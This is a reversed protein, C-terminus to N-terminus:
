GGAAPSPRPAHLAAPAKLTVGLVVAMLGIAFSGMFLWQYTGLLDHIAGGAYSGLGMGICSIFFVAGYATGMVREGFYERTVVPYLPMAGGYAVGFALSIAYLAVTGTAFLYLFILVAQFALAVLLTRKAGVRDAVIGTGIRGFISTFGSAGLITAATMRAVGQDMAHTVLHFLPGSHAACCCFHTLAITWFPWTRWPLRASGLVAGLQGGGPSHPPWTQSSSSHGGSHSHPPWAPQGGSPSHPPWTQAGASSFGLSTFAQGGGASPGKLLLACPVVAVLALVGLVFFAVRWDYENILWRTLPALTLIGLGNGASVVAAAMARRSEFWKIALVTLPVYFASVGAGVLLGFTVYLHWMQQVHSSLLLGAVLLGAGVLVVRRTGARDSVFGSVVGGAGMVVWNFLGIAGIGSRSWGMGDEIPKLFVGLTFLTGISMTIVVFAAALVVWGYFFRQSM